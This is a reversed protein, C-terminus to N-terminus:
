RAPTSDPHLRSLLQKKLRAAAAKSGPSKALNRSEDPDAILDYLELNGNGNRILITQGEAIAALTGPNAFARLESPSLVLDPQLVAIPLRTAGDVLISRGPFPTAVGPAVLAAITAPIESLSVAGSIRQNKSEVGPGAIVLPVHIVPQYISTTHGFMGHEGFAEGHDSTVIVVTNELEGAADLDAFLRALQGDLYAVCDDYNDRALQIERPTTRKDDIHIGDRLLLDDHISQPRLGFRVSSTPPPVYPTHADYYNLFALFPRSRDRSRLWALTDRNIRAADKLVFDDAVKHRQRIELRRCLSDIHVCIWWGLGSSRFVELPNTAYDEYHAFGRDLGYWRNCFYSNAAFGATAYGQGALFEALTPYTQDLASDVGVSLRSVDQGTFLSAHSPLTWSSPAIARDFTLGRTAFKALNPSTARDYGYLSLGDARVTDMVILLVNPAGSRAAPLRAQKLSEAVRPGIGRWGALVVVLGVLVPGTRRMLRHFAAARSELIPVTWVALGIALALAGFAALGPIALLLALFTLALITRRCSRRLRYTRRSVVDLVIGVAGFLVLQSVPIMWVYNPNKRYIGNRGFEGRFTVIAVELLGEALALWLALLL